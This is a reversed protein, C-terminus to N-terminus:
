GDRRDREGMEVILSGRTKRRPSTLPPPPTLKQYLNSSVQQIKKRDKDNWSSVQDEPLSTNLVEEKVREKKRPYRASASRTFSERHELTRSKGGTPPPPPHPYPPGRTVSTPVDRPLSSNASIQRVDGNPIYPPGSPVSNHRADGNPVVYPPGSPYKCSIQQTNNPQTDQTQNYSQNLFPPVDAYTSKPRSSPRPQSNQTNPSHSNRSNQLYAQSQRMKEAYSEESWYDNIDHHEMTSKPRSRKEHDLNGSENRDSVSTNLLQFDRDLFDASHPRPPHYKKRREHLGMDTTDPDNLLGSRINVSDSQSHPMGPKYHRYPIGDDYTQDARLPTSYKASQQGSQYKRSPQQAGPPGEAGITGGFKSISDRQEPYDPSSVRPGHAKGTSGVSNRMRTKAEPNGSGQMFIDNYVDEYDVRSRAYADPTRREGNSFPHPQYADSIKPTNTSSKYREHSNREMSGKSDSYRRNSGGSRDPSQDPSTSYDRSTNLRKPKPPANAYLPQKQNM